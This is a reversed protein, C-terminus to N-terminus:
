ELGAYQDELSQSIRQSHRFPSPFPFFPHHPPTFSLLLLRSISLSHLHLSLPPLFCCPHPFSSTTSHLSISASHTLSHFHIPLLLLFCCPHPLCPFPSPTFSLFLTLSCTVTSVCPLYPATPILSPLPFSPFSASHTHPSPYVISTLLLLSSPPSSPSIYHLPISASHALNTPHM